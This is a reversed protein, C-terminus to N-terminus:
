KERYVNFQDFNVKGFDKATYITTKPKDQETAYFREHGDKYLLWNKDAASFKFTIIRTWRQASGGYHEVSFYGKKITIGTFPDGMMGGCNVCYVANDSRAALQYTKNAQGTFILLPRKEPHDNVDSTSEEGKKRLVMILDPYKDLNLDGVTINLAEYGKPIYKRLAAPVPVEDEMMKYSSVPVPPVTTKLDSGSYAIASSSFFSTASFLTCLILPRFKM